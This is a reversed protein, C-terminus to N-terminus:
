HGAQRWLEKICIQRPWWIRLVNRLSKNIFLKQKLGKTLQWTESGYLLVAKDTGYVAMNTEVDFFAQRVKM